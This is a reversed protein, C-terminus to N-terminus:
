AAGKRPKVTLIVELPRDGLNLKDKWEEGIAVLAYVGAVEARCKDVIKILARQIDGSKIVDDVILVSDGRKIANRPIYLTVVMASDGAVYSEEIFDKVGVEKTTKAIVMGIGLAGSVMTALPIGDVAATLVRTIRRGSFRSFVYQAGQQLLMPDSIIPSNDFYGDEDFKIRRKLEEELGVLRELANLVERARESSPLVHGKVYRSLVTVPLGTRYSLERYTFNRKAVRLLDITMLRFKINSLHSGSM